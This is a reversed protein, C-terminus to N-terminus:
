GKQLVFFFPLDPRIFRRRTPPSPFVGTVAAQGSLQFNFGIPLFVVVFDVFDVTLSFLTLARLLLVLLVTSHGQRVILGQTSKTPRVGLEDHGLCATPSAAIM